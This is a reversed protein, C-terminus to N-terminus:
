RALAKGLAPDSLSGRRSRNGVGNGAAVELGAHGFGHAQLKRRWLYFRERQRGVRLSRKVPTLRGQKCRWLRMAQLSWKERAIPRPMGWQAQTFADHEAGARL